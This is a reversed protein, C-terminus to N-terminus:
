AQYRTSIASKNNSVSIAQSVLSQKARDILVEVIDEDFEEIEAIDVIPVPLTM